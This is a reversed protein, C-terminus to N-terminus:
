PLLHSVEAVPNESDWRYLHFIYLGQAILCRGGNETVAYSFYKDFFLKKENFGGLNSWLSKHFIMCNGAIINTELTDTGHDKWLSKALDFHVNIDSEDFVENIVAPNTPRLRNTMSGILDNKTLGPSNLLEILNTAFSPFKLTDHDTLCIWEDPLPQIIENLRKSLEFTPSYSQIYNVKL